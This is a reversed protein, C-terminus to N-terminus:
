RFRQQGLDAVHQPQPCPRLHFGAKEAVYGVVHVRQDSKRGSSTRRAPSSTSCYALKGSPVASAPTTATASRYLTVPTAVNSRFCKEITRGLCVAANVSSGYSAEGWSRYAFPVGTARM